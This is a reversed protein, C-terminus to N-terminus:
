FSMLRQSLLFNNLLDTLRLIRVWGSIMLIDAGWTFFSCCTWFDNSCVYWAMEAGTGQSQCCWSGPTNAKAYHNRKSHRAYEPLQLLRQSEIFFETIKGWIERTCCKQSCWLRKYFTSTEHKTFNQEWYPSVTHNRVTHNRVTNYVGSM